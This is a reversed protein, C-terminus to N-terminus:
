LRIVKSEKVSAVIAEALRVDELTDSPPNKGDRHTDLANLFARAQVDFANPVAPFDNTEVAAGAHLITSGGAGQESPSVDLIAKTGFFTVTWAPYEAAKVFGATFAALVDNQFRVNAICTEESVLDPETHRKRNAFASIECPRGLIWRVPNLFCYTMHTLPMGGSAEQRYYWTAPDGAWLALSRVAVLDGL